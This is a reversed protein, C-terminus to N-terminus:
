FGVPRHFPLIFAPGGSRCPDCPGPSCFCGTLAGIMSTEARGQGAVRFVNPHSVEVKNFAAAKLESYSIGSESTAMLM